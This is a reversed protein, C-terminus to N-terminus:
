PIWLRQGVYILDASALKNAQRLQVLNVRYKGAIVSLSEGSKVVHVTYQPAHQSLNHNVPALSRSSLQDHLQAVQQPKVSNQQQKFYKIISKVLSQALKTRFEKQSLLAAERKNTIYCAEVLVAPMDASRLVVFNARKLGEKNIRYGRLANLTTNLAIRGFELSHQLAATTSLDALVYTLLSDETPTPTEVGGFLLDAANEQEALRKAAKDTAKESLTYVSFGRVRRSPNANVHLSIFLDANYDQAIETRKPLKLFYDSDRTLYVKIYPATKQLIKQTQRAIDLVVTKEKLGQAGVAGPDRGGHGPDLVIIYHQNQKLPKTIEHREVQQQQIQEQSVADFLNVIVRAPQGNFRPLTQVTTDVKKSLDFVIQTTGNKLRQIRIRKLTIDNVLISHDGRIDQSKPIELVFRAPNSRHHYSPEVAHDFSIITQIHDPALWYQVDTILVPAACLPSGFIITLVLSMWVYNLVRKM